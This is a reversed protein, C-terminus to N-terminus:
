VNKWGAILKLMMSVDDIGIRGNGNVDALDTDLSVDWEAIYKMVLTVDALNLRGDGNADGRVPEPKPEPDPDPTVTTTIDPELTTTEETVIYGSLDFIKVESSDTDPDSIYPFHGYIDEYQYKIPKDEVRWVAYGIIHEEPDFNSPLEVSVGIGSEMMEEGGVTGAPVYKIFQYGDVDSKFLGDTNTSYYEEADDTVKFFLVFVSHYTTAGDADPALDISATYDFSLNNDALVVNAVDVNFSKDISISYRDHLDSGVYICQNYEKSKATWDKEFYYSSWTICGDFDRGVSMEVYGGGFNLERYYTWSRIVSTDSEDADSIFAPIMVCAILFVCLIRFYRKM